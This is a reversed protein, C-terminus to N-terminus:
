LIGGLDVWVEKETFGSAADLIKEKYVERKFELM